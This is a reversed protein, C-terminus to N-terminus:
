GLDRHRIAVERGKGALLEGLRQVVAPSRHRGGTCGIAVTLTSKGEREYLPLLFELLEAFRELFDRGERHEFIYQVVREDLGDLDRLGKVYFPNPLFRVDMVLDAEPPLGFSYGFSMLLVQLRGGLAEIEEMVIRRLRHGTLGSTDLVEDAMDRLFSLERREARVAESLELGERELPHRRRTESFRSILVEDSAELFLMKVEHGEAKVQELVRRFDGLFERGRIDVVMAVRSIDRSSHRCLDLLTPVLSPPLNDVCFYGSDELAKLATSKGSGSLGSIVVLRM